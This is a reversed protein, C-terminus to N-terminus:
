NVQGKYNQLNFVNKGTNLQTRNNIEEIGKLIMM